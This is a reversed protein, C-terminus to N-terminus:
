ELPDKGRKVGARLIEKLDFIRWSSEGRKRYSLVLGLYVRPGQFYALRLTQKGAGIYCDGHAPPSGWGHMGDYDIVDRENIQFIAGDDAELKFEYHGALSAPWDVIARYDIAFWEIRDSIGPFGETFSRGPINFRYTYINGEARQRNQGPFWRGAKRLQEIHDFFYITGTFGGRLESTSGFLGGDQGGGGFGSIGPMSGVEGFGVPTFEPQKEQPPAAVPSPVSAQVISAIQASSASPQRQRMGRMLEMKKLPVSRTTTDVVATAVIQPVDRIAPVVVIFVCIVLILTHIGISVALPLWKERRQKKRRIADQMEELSQM